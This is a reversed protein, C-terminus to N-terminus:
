LVGINGLGVIGNLFFYSHRIAMKDCRSPVNDSEEKPLKKRKPNKETRKQMVYIKKYKIRSNRPKKVEVIWCCNNLRKKEMSVIYILKFKDAFNQVNKHHM